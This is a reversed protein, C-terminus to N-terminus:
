LEKDPQTFLLAFEELLRLGEKPGDREGASKQPGALEQLVERGKSTLYASKGPFQKHWM